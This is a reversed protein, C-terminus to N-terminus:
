PEHRGEGTVATREAAPHVTFYCQPAGWGMKQHATVAYGSDGAMLTDLWTQWIRECAVCAQDVRDLGANRANDYVPCATITYADQATDYHTQLGPGLGFRAYADILMTAELRDSIARRGLTRLLERMEIRAYAIRVRANLDIAAELGFSEAAKLFWQGDWALALRAMM